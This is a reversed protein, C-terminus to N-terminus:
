RSSRTRGSLMVSFQSGGEGQCGGRVCKYYWNISKFNCHLTKLIDIAYDTKVNVGLVQTINVTYVIHKLLMVIKHLHSWILSWCKLTYATQTLFFFFFIM